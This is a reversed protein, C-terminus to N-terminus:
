SECTEKNLGPYSSQPFLVQRLPVFGEPQWLVEMLLVTLQMSLSSISRQFILALLSYQTIIPPKRAKQKRYTSAFEKSFLLCVPFCGLPVQLLQWLLARVDRRCHSPEQVPADAGRWGGGFVAGLEPVQAAGSTTCSGWTGRATGM